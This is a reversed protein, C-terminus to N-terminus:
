NWDLIGVVRHKIFNVGRIRYTHKLLGGYIHYCIHYSIIVHSLMCPFYGGGGGGLVLLRHLLHEGQGGVTGGVDQIARRPGPFCQRDYACVCACACVCMCMCACACVCVCV